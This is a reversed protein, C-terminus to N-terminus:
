LGDGRLRKRQQELDAQVRAILRQYRVEDTLDDFAGLWSGTDHIGRWGHDVARQLYDLAEERRGQLAHYMALIDNVCTGACEEWARRAHAEGNRLLEDARARDGTRLAVIASESMVIIDDSVIALARAHYRSAAEYNGRLIEFRAAERLGIVGVPRHLHPFRYQEEAARLDGRLVAVHGLVTHLRGPHPFREHHRRLWEEARDPDGLTLYGGWITAYPEPSAPDLAVARTALRIAEDFRGASRHYGAVRALVEANDPAMELARRFERRAGEDDGTLAHASGIYVQAQALDPDGTLARRSHLIISDRREGRSLDARGLYARALGVHALHFTEDEALAERFHAIARTTNSLHEAHSSVNRNLHERGRLYLDYAAASGTAARALRSQEGATLRLQLADAIATAIESQIAFIDDLRRDFSDSWLHEDSRADILQATIRVRGGSRRVSGELIHAVGLEDGIQRLNKTTGKYGMVSTRSTVRLGGVRSLSSLIDETIGDSFYENEEDASLNAFPLVAISRDLRAAPALVAAPSDPRARELPAYRYLSMGLAALILVTLTWAPLRRAIRVPGAPTAPSDTPSRGEGGATRGTREIGEPTIDFIWALVVVVPIGLLFLAIVLRVTWEPLMLVPFTTAAVQVVIWAVIAYIGTVRFVRRRRLESLVYRLNM